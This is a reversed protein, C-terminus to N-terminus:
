RYIQYFKRLKPLHGKGGYFTFISVGIGKLGTYPPPPNKRNNGDKTFLFKFCLSQSGVWHPNVTPLSSPSNFFFYM